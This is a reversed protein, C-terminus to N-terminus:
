LNHLDLRKFFEWNVLPSNPFKGDGGPGHVRNQRHVLSVGYNGSAIFAAYNGPTKKSGKKHIPTIHGMKWCEPLHKENFSKTFIIELPYCITDATEVLVRPHLGDPGASKTPKLKKLKKAIIVPTITLDSM